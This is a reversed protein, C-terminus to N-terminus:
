KKLDPIKAVKRRFIGFMEMPFAAGNGLMEKAWAKLTQAHVSQKSAVGAFKTQLEALLTKAAEAQEKNFSVTIDRKIIGGHGNEDLWKHATGQNEKSIHAEVEEKVSIELGDTTKFESLGMGQMLAPLRVYIIGALHKTKAELERELRAIEAQTERAEIVMANLPAFAEDTPAAQEKFDSYDAVIPNAM